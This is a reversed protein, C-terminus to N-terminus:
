GRMLYVLFVGLAASCVGIIRLQTDPTEMVAAVAKKASEPFVAFVLGEIVFVLGIAVLFDTM